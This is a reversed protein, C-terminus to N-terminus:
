QSNERSDTQICPLQSSEEGTFMEVRRIWCVREDKAVGDVADLKIRALVVRYVAV